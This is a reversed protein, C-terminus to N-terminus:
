PRRSGAEFGNAFIRDEATGVLVGGRVTAVALRGDALRASATIWDASGTWSTTWTRGDAARYVNGGAGTAVFGDADASLGIIDTPVAAVSEWSVGDSSVVLAPVNGSSSFSLGLAVYVGDRWAIDTLYSANTGTASESWTVADTSFFVSTSFGASVAAFRKGDYVIRGVPQALNTTQPQWSAGDDASTLVQVEAGSYAAGAVFVGDGYAVGYLGSVKADLASLNASTWTVGDTSSYAIPVSAGDAPNSASGIAVRHSAGSALGSFSGGDFGSEVTLVKSWTGGGDFSAILTANSGHHGDGAGMGAAILTSGDALISSLRWAPSGPAVANWTAAGTRAFLGGGANPLAFVTSGAQALRVLPLRDVLGEGTWDLGNASSMVVPHADLPLPPDNYSALAVYRGAVPDFAGSKFYVTNGDHAATTGASWTTGDLSTLSLSDFSDSTALAVFRGGAHVFGRGFLVGDHGSFPGLPVLTWTAANTSTLVAASSSAGIPDIDVWVVYVGNGFAVGQLRPGFVGPEVGSDVETWTVGDPSTILTLEGCAVFGASGYTVARLSTTTPNTSRTWNRGDTSRWVAGGQGVAVFAGNGYTVAELAEGSGGARALSWSSGDNSHLISGGNGVAVYANAGHAVARMANGTPAPLKWDWTTASATATCLWLV